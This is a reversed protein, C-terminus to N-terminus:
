LEFLELKELSRSMVLKKVLFNIFLLYEKNFTCYM